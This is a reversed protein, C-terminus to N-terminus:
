QFQVAQIIGAERDLRDVKSTRFIEKHFINLFCLWGALGIHNVPKEKHKRIWQKRSRDLRGPNISSDDLKCQKFLETKKM